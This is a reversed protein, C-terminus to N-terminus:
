AAIAVAAPAAPAAVGQELEVAKYDPRLRIVYGLNLFRPPETGLHMELGLDSPPRLWCAWAERQLERQV